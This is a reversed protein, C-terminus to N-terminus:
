VQQNSSLIFTFTETHLAIPHVDHKYINRVYELATSYDEKHTLLQKMKFFAVFTPQKFCEKISTIVLDLSEFYQQRFYEEVTAAIMSLFMPVIVFFPTTRSAVLLTFSKKSVM